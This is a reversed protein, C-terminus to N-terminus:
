GQDGESLRSAKREIVNRPHEAGVALNRDTAFGQGRLRIIEVTCDGMKRCKSIPQAM